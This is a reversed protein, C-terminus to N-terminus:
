GNLNELHKIFNKGFAIALDVPVANGIQKAMSGLNGVFVFSDPFGQIRAAERISLARDQEPHGFRGNSYSICRTTLGPAPRNWWLRGYCDTHGIHKQGNIGRRKYCEPILSKRWKKRSGGDHPTAKIRKLNLKSLNAARHNLIMKSNCEEGAKLKPLDGIADKVTKYPFEGLPGHTPAPIDINSLRSAILVLRKRLQAAGYDQASVVQYKTIYNKEELLNLFDSFMRNSSSRIGPVNEVFVLDPLCAKIIHGFNSLLSIRGDNKRASTKQKTFPQCPACGCFLSYKSSHRELVAKVEAVSLQTIDEALFFAKPFNKSFTLSSDRDNDLGFAIEMGAQQFGSSTGGCGSFFDFVAIEKKRKHVM